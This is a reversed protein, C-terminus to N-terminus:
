SGFSSFKGFYPGADEPAGIGLGRHLMDGACAGAIRIIWGVIMM